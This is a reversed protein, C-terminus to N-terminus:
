VAAIDNPMGDLLARQLEGFSMALVHLYPDGPFALAYADPDDRLRYTTLHQEAAQRNTSPDAHVLQEVASPHAPAADIASEPGSEDWQVALTPLKLNARVSDGLQAVIYKGADVLRSFVVAVTEQRSNSREPVLSRRVNYTGDPTPDIIWAGWDDREPYDSRFYLRDNEWDPADPDDTGTARALRRWFDYRGIIGDFGDDDDDIAPEPQASYVPPDWSQIGDKTIVSPMNPGTRDTDAHKAAFFPSTWTMAVGGHSYRTINVHFAYKRDADTWGSLNRENGGEDYRYTWGWADFLRKFADFVVDSGPGKPFGWLWYSTEFNWSGRPGVPGSSAGLPAHQGPERYGVTLGDPMSALIEVIYQVIAQRVAVETLELNVLEPAQADFANMERLDWVLHLSAQIEPVADAAIPQWLAPDNLGMTAPYPMPEWRASSVAYGELSRGDTSRFLAQPEDVSHAVTLWFGPQVPTNLWREVDEPLQRFAADLETQSWVPQWGDQRHLEDHLAEPLDVWSSQETSFQELTGNDDARALGLVYGQGTAADVSRKVYYHM